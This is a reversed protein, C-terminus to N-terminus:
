DGGGGKGGIGLVKLVIVTIILLGAIGWIIYKPSFGGGSSIAAPEDDSGEEKDDSKKPAPRKPKPKSKKDDSDKDTGEAAKKAERRAREAAVIEARTQPKAAAKEEGDKSDDTKGEEEGEGDKKEPMDADGKTGAKEDGEDSVVAATGTKKADAIKAAAAKATDELEQEKKAIESLLWVSYRTATDAGSSKSSSRKSKKSSSKGTAEAIKGRAASLSGEGILRNAEQLTQAQASLANADIARLTTLQSKVLAVANQLSESSRFNVSTWLIGRSKENAIAQEFRAQEAAKAQRIQTLEDAKLNKAAEEDQKNLFEVNSLQRELNQGWSPLLKLASGLAAAQAPTEQYREDIVEFERLAGLIDKNAMKQKMRQHRIRAEIAFRYLQREEMSIWEGELKIAGLQVKEKEEELQKVIAEVEAVHESEPFTTLFRQAGTRIMDNYDASSMLDPTPINAKIAAFAVKDPATKEIKAVDAMGFTKTEKISGSVQVEIRVMDTGEAIIKGEIKEGSKLTVVDAVAPATASLTAVFVLLAIALSQVASRFSLSSM